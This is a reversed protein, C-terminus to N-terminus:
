GLEFFIKAQALQLKNEEQNSDLITRYHQKLDELFLQTGRKDMHKILEDLQAEFAYLFLHNRYVFGINFCGKWSKATLKYLYHEKSVAEVKKSETGKTFIVNVIM